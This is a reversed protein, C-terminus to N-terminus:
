GNCLLQTHQRLVEELDQSKFPKTLVGWMGADLAEQRQEPLANATCAIIPVARPFIGPQERELRRIEATAQDVSRALQRRVM